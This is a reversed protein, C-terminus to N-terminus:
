LFVLEKKIVLFSGVNLIVLGFILLGWESITPISITPISIASIPTFAINIAFFLDSPRNEVFTGGADIGFLFLGNPDTNNGPEGIPMNDLRITTPGSVGFAYPTGAQVAFSKSLRLTTRGAPQAAFSEFVTGSTILSGNGTTLYLDINGGSTNITIADITGTECAIFQQGVIGGMSLLPGNLHNTNDLTCIDARLGISFCFCIHIFIIRVVLM